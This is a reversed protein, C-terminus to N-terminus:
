QTVYIIFRIIAFEPRNTYDERTKIQISLSSDTVIYFLVCPSGGM